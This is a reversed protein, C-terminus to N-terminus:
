GCNFFSITKLMEGAFYYKTTLIQCVKSPVTTENSLKEMCILYKPQPVSNDNLCVLGYTLDDENIEEYTVLM